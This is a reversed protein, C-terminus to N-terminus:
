EVSFTGMNGTEHLIIMKWARGNQFGHLMLNSYETTMKM